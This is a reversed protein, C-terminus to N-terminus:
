RREERAAPPEAGAADLWVPEHDFLVPPAGAPNKAEPAAGAAATDQEPAFQDFPARPRPPRASASGPEYAGSTDGPAPRTLDPEGAEVGVGVGAGVGVGVGVGAAVLGPETEAAEAMFLGPGPGRTAGTALDPVPDAGGRGGYMGRAQDRLRSPLDVAMQGADAALQSGAMRAAPFPSESRLIGAAGAALETFPLIRMLAWPAFTSLMILSMAVLLEDTGPTGHVFAEAALSLVAVIVFKSLILSALLEVLRAAWVRRAPWVLAAFALPLMLVVVYVAAARVLLEIALAMAAMLALLGVVVAFFPSGGAATALGGATAAADDLFRAGGGAAGASVVTSMQDTAALLLMTLPAALSVGLVSLPLYGFVVRGLLNLDARAIAQVAAACLFPITLMAALAAVRWYASSFWSSELNPATASGIAGAVELLATRTGGLVWSSIAHLVMGAAGGALGSVLGGIPATIPSLVGSLSVGPALPSSM